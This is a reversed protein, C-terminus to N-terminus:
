KAVPKGNREVIKIKDWQFKDFPPHPSGHWAHIVAAVSPLGTAGVMDAALNGAAGIAHLTSMGLAKAVDAYRGEHLAQVMEQGYRYSERADVATSAGPLSEAAMQGLMAQAGTGKGLNAPLTPPGAAQLVTQPQQVVPVTPM